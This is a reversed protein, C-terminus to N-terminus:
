PYLPCKRFKINEIRAIVQASTGGNARKVVIQAARGILTACALVATIRMIRPNRLAVIPIMRDVRSVLGGVFHRAM